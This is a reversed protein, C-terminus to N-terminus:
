GGRLLRVLEARSFPKCISDTFGYAAPSAMVPDDAYGSAVFVPLAPDIIRIETLAERGGMGGPVTLDLIMADVRRAASRERQLAAIAESGSQTTIVSYGLSELVRGVAYRVIEEDDMVIVTGLRGAPPPASTGRGPAAGPLAPLYLHFTSGQGVTSDVEIHGGHRDVISYATALGLGHGQRKTSFFPDFIRPLIEPAMGAGRDAISIRVYDGPAPRVRPGDEVLTVNEASLEIEGGDVMAQKANIVINDIVQGIQNRDFECCWLDTPIRFRCTTRAGSLAFHATERLFPDLRDVKKIPAGGKAFTLLQLTLARSRDVAGLAKALFRLVEPEASAAMALDICGFIGSLLNNFDHAIGGALVGLSELKQVTRLAEEELKRATIDRAYGTTGIIEGHRDKVPTKFTEFWRREGADLILEEVQVPTGNRMVTADDVRYKEALEPPWIDHDTKGVLEAPDDAGCSRAFARNVALFRGDADKLWVLGPQNEIIARLCSERLRLEEEPTGRASKPPQSM